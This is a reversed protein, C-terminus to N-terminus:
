FISCKSDSDKQKQLKKLQSERLLGKSYKNTHGGDTFFIKQQYSGMDEYGSDQNNVNNEESGEENEEEESDSTPDM